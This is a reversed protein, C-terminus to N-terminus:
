RCMGDVLVLEATGINWLLEPFRAGSEAAARENKIERATAHSNVEDGVGKIWLAVM